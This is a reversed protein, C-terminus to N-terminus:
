VRQGGRRPGLSGRPRPFAARQRPHVIRVTDASRPGARRRTGPAVRGARARARPLVTEHLVGSGLVFKLIAPSVPDKIRGARSRRRLWQIHCPRGAAALVSPPSRHPGRPGRPRAPSAAPPPPAADEV